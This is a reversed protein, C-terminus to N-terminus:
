APREGASRARAEGALIRGKEFAAGLVADDPVYAAALPPAVIEFGMEELAKSVDAAGGGRWGHAGFAFGARRGPPRLGGIYTLFAGVSPMYKNNLTASGVAIVPTDLMETAVETLDNKRLHLIRAQVGQSAVGGAIARAMRDTAGWMSDYLIAVKPACDGRSWGAYAELLPRLDGRWAVGHAPQVEDIALVAVAELAKAVPKALGMLINAFYRKAEEMALGPPLEDAFRVSSALHQGLADSSYLIRDAPDYTVMSDPWHAMPIPLFRLRRRGVDIESGAAVAEFPWDCGYHARLTEIGKKTALVKAKPAARVLDPISGSHDPEGHNAVIYEIRAPDIREAIKRLQEAAFGAKVGDILTPHEDLILFANYSTGRHTAYGHFDRVNWDVCGVWVADPRIEVSEKAPGGTSAEGM